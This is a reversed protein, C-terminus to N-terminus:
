REPQKDKPPLMYVSPNRAIRFGVFYKEQGPVQWYRIASRCKNQRVMFSGGRFTRHVGKEPGQPDTKPSDEFYTKDYWDWCWEAANGHMDYLGWANPAYKGVSATRGISRTTARSGYHSVRYQFNGGGSKRGFHYPTTTGARCAYEWEAETPLRYGTGGNVTVTASVIKKGERKINELAYFPKRKELESLRNCFEIADFWTVSEVPFRKVDIAGVKAKGGGDQTFWSPNHGMVKEYQEQTIEHTGMMFPKSIEVRHRLENAQHDFESKPSGMDFAGARVFAFRSELAPSQLANAMIQGVLKKARYKIELKSNSAAEERLRPLATEGIAILAQGASERQSFSPDGLQTILNDLRDDNRLRRNKDPQSYVEALWGMFFFVSFAIVQTVRNFQKKTRVSFSRHTSPFLTVSAM